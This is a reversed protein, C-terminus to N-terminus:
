FPELLYGKLTILAKKREGTNSGDTGRRKGCM